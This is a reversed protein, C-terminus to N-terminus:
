YKEFEAFIANHDTAPQTNIISCKSLKWQDDRRPRLYIYDIRTGYACTVLQEDKLTPHLLKLADQYHWEQTILRTLDFRPKEWGYTERKGAVINTYYDDSYDDRTLANMDGILIDINQKHPKFYQIQALRDDEDLHDLHTVAFLRNIVFPHDGDLGFQLISRKGGSCRFDIPRTSANIIPYRSAIGNGHYKGYTADFKFYKLSLDHCFKIWNDGNEVEEVALLDLDLPKLISVLENVNNNHGVASNFSHVNITVLRFTKHIAAQSAM